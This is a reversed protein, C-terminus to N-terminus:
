DAVAWSYFKRVRSRVPVGDREAAYFQFRPLARLLPGVFRQDTASVLRIGCSEARGDAGVVFSLIVEGKIGRDRLERPYPAVPSGPRQVVQKTLLAEEEVEYIRGLVAFRASDGPSCSDLTFPAPRPTESGSSHACAGVLLCLGIRRATSTVRRALRSPALISSKTM